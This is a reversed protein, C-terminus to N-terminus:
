NHAEANIANVFDIAELRYDQEAMEQEYAARASVVVPTLVIALGLLPFLVFSLM